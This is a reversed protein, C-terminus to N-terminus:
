AKGGLAEDAIEKAHAMVGSVRCICREPSFVCNRSRETSMQSLRM